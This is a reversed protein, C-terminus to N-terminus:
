QINHTRIIEADYGLHDLVANIITDAKQNTLEIEKGDVKAITRHYQCCVYGNSCTTIKEILEIIVKQKSM